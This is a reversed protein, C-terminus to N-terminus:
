SSYLRVTTSTCYKLEAEVTGHKCLEPSAILTFRCIAEWQLDYTM